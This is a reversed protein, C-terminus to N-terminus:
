ALSRNRRCPRRRYPCPQAAQVALRRAPGVSAAPVAATRTAHADGLRITTCAIRM